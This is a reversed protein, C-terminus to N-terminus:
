YVAELIIPDSDWEQGIFLLYEILNAYLGRKTQKILDIKFTITTNEDQNTCFAVYISAYCKPLQYIHPINVGYFMFDKSQFDFITVSRLLIAEFCRYKLLAIKDNECVERFTNLKKCMRILNRIEKEFKLNMTKTLDDIDTIERFVKSQPHRMVYTATYLDRLINVELENLENDSIHRDILVDLSTDYEIAKERFKNIIDMNEPLDVMDQSDNLLEGCLLQNMDSIDSRNTDSISPIDSTSSQSDTHPSGIRMLINNPTSDSTKSLYLLTNIINKDKYKERLKRNVEIKMKRM